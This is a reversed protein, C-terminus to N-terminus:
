RDLIESLVELQSLLCRIRTSSSLIESNYIEHKLVDLSEQVDIITQSDCYNEYGSLKDEFDAKLVRLRSFDEELEHQIIDITLEDLLAIGVRLFGDM